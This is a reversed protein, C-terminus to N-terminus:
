NKTQKGEDDAARMVARQFVGAAINITHEAAKVQGPYDKEVSHAWRRMRAAWSRHRKLRAIARSLHDM